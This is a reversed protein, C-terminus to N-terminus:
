HATSARRRRPESIPLVYARMSGGYGEDGTARIYTVANKTLSLQNAAAPLRITFRNEIADDTVVAAWLGQPDHGVILVGGDFLEIDGFGTTGLDITSGGLFDLFVNSGNTGAIANGAVRAAYYMPPHTPPDLVVGSRTVHVASMHIQIPTTRQAQWAVLYNDGDIGVDPAFGLPLDDADSIRLFSPDLITGDGTIRVGRIKYTNETWVLLAQNGDSAFRPPYPESTTSVLTPASDLTGNAFMRRILLHSVGSSVELYAIAFGEGLPAVAPATSYAQSAIVIGRGDLHKHTLPDIRAAFIQATSAEYWTALLLSGNGAVQPFFQATAMHGLDGPEGIQITGNVNTPYARLPASAVLLATTGISAYDFAFSVLQTAIVGGGPDVLMLSRQGTFASFQLLTGSVTNVAKQLNFTGTAIISDSLPTGNSDILLRHLVGNSEWFLAPGAAAINPFATPMTTAPKWDGIAGTSDIRRTQITFGKEPHAPDAAVTAFILFGNGDASATASWDSVPIPGSAEEGNENFLFGITGTPPVQWLVLFQSGNCTVSEPHGSLPQFDLLTPSSLNGDNDITATYGSTGESWSVLSRNGGAGIAAPGGTLSITVPGRIRKGSLDTVAAFVGGNIPAVDGGIFGYGWVAIFRDGSAGVAVATPQSAPGFTPDSVAIEQAVASTAILLLLAIKRM